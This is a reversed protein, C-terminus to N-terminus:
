LKITIRIKEYKYNNIKQMHITSELSHTYGYCKDVKNM